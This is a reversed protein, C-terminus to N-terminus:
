GKKSKIVHSINDSETIIIYDTELEIEGSDIKIELEEIHSRIEQSTMPVESNVYAGLWRKGGKKVKRFGKLTMFDSLNSQQYDATDNQIKITDLAFDSKRTAGTLLTVEFRVYGLCNFNRIPVQLDHWDTGENGHIEDYVDKWRFGTWAQVKLNITGGINSCYFFDVVYDDNFDFSDISTMTFKQGSQCPACSETYVYGHSHGALPGTSASETAEDTWNWHGGRPVLGEGQPSKFEWKTLSSEKSYFPSFLQKAM